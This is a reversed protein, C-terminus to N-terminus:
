QLILKQTASAGNFNVMRYFYTGSALESLDAQVENHGTDYIRSSIQHVVKETWIFSTVSPM